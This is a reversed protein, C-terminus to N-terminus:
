ELKIWEEPKYAKGWKLRLYTRDEDTLDDDFNDDAAGSIQAFYDEIEPEAYVPEALEGEPIIIKNKEVAM